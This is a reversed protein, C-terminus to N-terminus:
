TGVGVGRVTGDAAVTAVSTNSSSFSLTRGTLVANRADRATIGLLTTTGVALQLSTQAATLTAVAPIVVTVPVDLRVTTGNPGEASLATVTATGVARGLVTGETTITAVAANSSSLTITRGPLPNNRVDRATATLTRAEGSELSLTSAAAPL